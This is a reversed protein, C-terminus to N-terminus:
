KIKKTLRRISPNIKLPMLGKLVDSLIKIMEPSCTNIEEIFSKKLTKLDAPKAPFNFLEIIKVNLGEAVKVLTDLSCNKEGREIAGIHTYHLDAKYGLEEQSLGREKRLQRIREGVLKRIDEV